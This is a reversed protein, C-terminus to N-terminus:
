VTSQVPRPRRVPFVMAPPAVPQQQTQLNYEAVDIANNAAEGLAIAFGALVPLTADYAVYDFLVCVSYATLTSMLAYCVSAVQKGVATPSRKARKFVKLLGTFSFFIIGLFFILAPIGAESSVQTYTNHTGQYKASQGQATEQVAMYAGFAGLGVGTLPHAATVKLSNILLRRRAASSSVAADLIQAEQANTAQISDAGGFITAYRQVMAPFYIIVAMGAAIAGVSLTLKGIISARLFALIVLIGLGILGARSGTRVTAYICSMSFFFAILRKVKPANPDSAMLWLFPLGLLLIFALENANSLTGRGVQLRGADTRGIYAALVSAIAVGWGISNLAKRCQQFTVVLAGAIMFAIVSKVWEDAFTRFSQGHWTSLPVNIAYLATLAAMCGGIKSRFTTLLRGDMAAGLLAILSTILPVHLFNLKWEFFRSYYALNFICFCYFGLRLM